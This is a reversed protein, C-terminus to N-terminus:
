KWVKWWSRAPPPPEPADPEKYPESLAHEPLDMPLGNAWCLLPKFWQPFDAPDFSLLEGLQVDTLRYQVRLAKAALALALSIVDVGEGDLDVTLSSGVVQQCTPCRKAASVRGVAQALAGAEPWDDGGVINLSVKDEAFSPVIRAGRLPIAWEVGRIVLKPCEDPHLAGPRRASVELERWRHLEAVSM